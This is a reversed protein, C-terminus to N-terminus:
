KIPTNVNLFSNIKSKQSKKPWIIKYKLSVSASREDLDLVSTLFCHLQVEMRYTKVDHVLFRKGSGDM